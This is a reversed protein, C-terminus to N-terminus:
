IIKGDLVQILYGWFAKDKQEKLPEFCTTRTKVEMKINAVDKFAEKVTNTEDNLEFIWENIGPTLIYNLWERKNDDRRNFALYNKPLDNFVCISYLGNKNNKDTYNILRFIDYMIKGANKSKTINGNNRNIGGFYKFELWNKQYIGYQSLKEEPIIRTLDLYMDCRINIDKDYRKEMQIKGLPNDINRANLETLIAMSFLNAINNEYLGDTNEYGMLIEPLKFLASEIIM